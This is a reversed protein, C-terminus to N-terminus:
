VLMNVELELIRKQFLLYEFSIINILKYTIGLFENLCNNLFFPKTKIIKFATSKIRYFSSNIMNKM